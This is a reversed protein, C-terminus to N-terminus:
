SLMAVGTEVGIESRGVKGGSFLTALEGCTRCGGADFEPEGLVELCISDLKVMSISLWGAAATM